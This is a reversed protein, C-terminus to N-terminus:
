KTERREVKILLGNHFILVSGDAYHWHEEAVKIPGQVQIVRSPAGLVKKVEAGTLGPVPQRKIAAENVAPSWPQARIWEVRKKDAEAVEASKRKEEAAPDTTVITLNLAEIFQEPSIYGEQGNERKIKYYPNKTAQGVLASIEFSEVTDVRALKANAAPATAFSPGKGDVPQSWFIQGVRTALAEMQKATYHRSPWAPQSFCVLLLACLSAAFILRNKKTSHNM